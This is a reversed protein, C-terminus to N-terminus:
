NKSRLLLIAKQLAEFNGPFKVCGESIEDPTVWKYDSHEGPDIQIDWKTKTVVLFAKECVNRKWQDVFHHTLDMDKIWEINSTQLGTEEMLERIAGDEYSEGDEIKGTCNQWFSGRRENTKLLLIEIQQHENPAVAVIQAKRTLNEM